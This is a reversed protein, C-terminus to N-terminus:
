ASAQEIREPQAERRAKAHALIIRSHTWGYAHVLLACSAITAPLDQLNLIDQIADFQM